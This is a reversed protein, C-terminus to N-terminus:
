QFEDSIGADKEAKVREDNIRWWWRMTEETVGEREADWPKPSLIYHVNSRFLM